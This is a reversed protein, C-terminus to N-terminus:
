IFQRAITAAAAKAIIDIPNIVTGAAAASHCVPAGYPQFLSAAILALRQWVKSVSGRM